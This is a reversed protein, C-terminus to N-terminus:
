KNTPVDVIAAETTLFMGAVSCANELAVRAVKTPDIVGSAILDEFYGTKVNYGYGAEEKKGDVVMQVITNIRQDEFGANITMQRLPAELAAKIISLGINEDSNDFASPLKELARLYATGGGPLVGEAIAAYTACKADDIRDLKERMEVDTQGGVYIIGTGNTLKALRQSQLKDSEFNNPANKILARIEKIRGEIASKQGKAGIISTTTSNIVVKAAKGFFTHDVNEWAQGLTQSVIKGGTMIAIDELMQLQMNGFGPQKIAAFKLGAEMKSKLLMGLAEGDVDEAIVLVPRPPTQALAFELLHKIDKVLSIKRESFIILADDFEVTMKEPNNVFYPSLYGKDIQIGETLEIYTQTTKSSYLYIIGDRGTKNIADAVLAGIEPENNAAITAIHVLNAETVPQSQKKLSEVVLAVAKDMGKKVDVPNSNAEMAELGKGMIVQALLTSTTTGDGATEATKKAAMKVMQAGMNEVKDVLNITDAVSVGDKTMRPTHPPQQSHIIVNRGSPGLTVKVADSLKDVGLKMKQRAEKNYFIDTIM